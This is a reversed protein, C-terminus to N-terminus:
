SLCYLVLIVHYCCRICTMQKWLSARYAARLAPSLIVVLLVFLYCCGVQAMQKWTLCGQICCAFCYMLVAEKRMLMQLKSLQQQRQQQLGWDVEQQQLVARQPKFAASMNHGRRDHTAAPVAAAAPSDAATAADAFAGAAEEAILIPQDQLQQQL